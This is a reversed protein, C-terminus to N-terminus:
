ATQGSTCFLALAFLISIILYYYGTSDPDYLYIVKLNMLFFLFRPLLYQVDLRWRVVSKSCDLCFRESVYCALTFYLICFIVCLISVLDRSNDARASSFRILYFNM